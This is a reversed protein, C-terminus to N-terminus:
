SELVHFLGFFFFVKKIFSNIVQLLTCGTVPDFLPCKKTKLPRTCALFTPFCQVEINYFMYCPFNGSVTFAQKLTNTSVSTIPYIIDDYFVFGNQGTPNTM